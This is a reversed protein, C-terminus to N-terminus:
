YGWCFHFWKVWIMLKVFLLILQIAIPNSELGCCEVDAQYKRNLHIIWIDWNKFFFILVSSVFTFLPPTLSLAVSLFHFVSNTFPPFSFYIDCVQTPTPTREPCTMTFWRMLIQLMSFVNLIVCSKERWMALATWVVFLVYHSPSRFSFCVCPETEEFSFPLFHRPIWKHWFFFSLVRFAHVIHASALVLSHFLLIREMSVVCHM